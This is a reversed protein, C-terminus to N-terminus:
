DQDHLPCRANGEMPMRMYQSVLHETCLLRDSVATSLMDESCVLVYLVTGAAGGRCLHVSFTLLWGVTTIAM